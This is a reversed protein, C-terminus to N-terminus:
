KWLCSHHGDRIVSVNLRDGLRGGATRSVHGLLSTTNISIATQETTSVLLILLRATFLPCISVPGAGDSYSVYLAKEAPSLVGKHPLFTSNQGAVASGLHLMFLHGSNLGFGSVVAALIM